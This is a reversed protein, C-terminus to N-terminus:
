MGVDCGARDPKLNQDLVKKNDALGNDIIYDNCFSFLSLGNQKALSKIKEIGEDSWLPNQLNHSREAILEIYDLNLEAALFSRNGITRPSVM